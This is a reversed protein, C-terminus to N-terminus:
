ATSRTARKLIDMVQSGIGRYRECAPCHCNTPFRTSAGRGGALANIVTDIRMLALKAISMDTDHNICVFELTAYRQETTLEEWVEAM